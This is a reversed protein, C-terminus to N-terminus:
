SGGSYVFNIASSVNKRSESCPVILIISFIVALTALGYPYLANDVIMKHYEPPGM